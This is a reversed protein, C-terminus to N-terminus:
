RAGPLNDPDSAPAPPVETGAELLPRIDDIDRFVQHMRMAVSDPTQRLIDMAAAWQWMGKEEVSNPAILLRVVEATLQQNTAKHDAGYDGYRAPDSRQWHEDATVIPYDHWHPKDADPRPEIYVKVGLSRLLSAFRYTPSDEDTVAASDFAVSMGAKLPAQVSLLARALWREPEDALADFDPDGEIKGLYAIVEVDPYDPDNLVPQWAEAFDETLWHLGADRAHLYQDFQMPEEPLTGFPNHLNFRRLGRRMLPRVQLRVFDFWDSRPLNWGVRRVAADDSSNGIAIFALVRDPLPRKGPPLPGEEAAVVVVGFLVAILCVLQILRFAMFSAGQRQYAKLPQFCRGRLMGHRRSTKDFGPTRTEVRQQPAGAARLTRVPKMEWPHHRPPSPFIPRLVAQMPRTPVSSIRFTGSSGCSGCNSCGGAQSAVAISAAVAVVFWLTAALLPSGVASAVAKPPLVIAVPLRVLRHYVYLGYSIRGLMRLPGFSAVKIPLSGESLLVMWMLFSAFFIALVTYGILNMIPGSHQLGGERIVALLLLVGSLLMIRAGWRKLAEQPTPGRLLLAVLGGIALSDMRCFTVIYPERPLAPWMFWAFRSLVAAAVVLLCVRMAGRRDFKVMLLPWLLYFHEEVALSWFHALMNYSHGFFNNLYLWLWIQHESAGRVSQLVAERHGAGIPLVTVAYPVVVLVIFLVSYYLPFVRLARRCYFNRFYHPDQKTDHLIGTILFGSLVFFLDVGIWGTGVLRTVGLGVGVQELPMLHHMMVLMVAVGRIGDLAPIYRDARVPGAPGLM